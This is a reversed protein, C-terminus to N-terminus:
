GGGIFHIIEINDGESIEIDDFASRPVIELNREIAIKRKDLSFKELLASINIQRELVLDEGNLTIKM